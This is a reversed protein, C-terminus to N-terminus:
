IDPKGTFKGKLWDMSGLWLIPIIHKPGDGYSCFPIQLITSDALFPLSNEQIADSHSSKKSDSVPSQSAFISTLGGFFVDVILVLTQSILEFEKRVRM